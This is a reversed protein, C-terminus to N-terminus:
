RDYYTRTGQELFRKHRMYPESQVKNFSEAKHVDPHRQLWNSEIWNKFEYTEPISVATRFKGLADEREAKSERSFVLDAQWNAKPNNRNRRAERRFFKYSLQSVIADHMDVHDPIMIDGNEDTKHALYSLLVEGNKFSVEMFPLDLTFSQKCDQCSVNPCDGLVNRINFFDNSAYRMLMFKAQIPKEGKDGYGYRDAGLFTKMHTYYIWPNQMEFIRDVDVEVIPMDCSCSTTKCKDCVLNIELDCDPTSQIWQTIEPRGTRKCKKEEEWVNAAVAILHKFDKPLEIKTNRVPIIAIKHTLNELTPVMNVCDTAWKILLSEPVMENDAVGDDDIWDQIANQISVYNLKM